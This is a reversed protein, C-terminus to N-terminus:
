NWSLKKREAWYHESEVALSTLIEIEGELLRFQNAKLNETIHKPMSAGSLVKFIPLSDLCFRLAIADVGVSYKTALAELSRYAKAYHPYQKNPFIRGNAMAEKIVVKKNQQSLRDMIKALSQEFVNYTVQFVDFLQVGEFKVELSKRIVENQNSGSTTLGISIGHTSKLDFLRRLVARNELVGSELTASHIQYIFLHPLLAKSHNWQEELKSLSHEKIEHQVADPAFNAVYTYGWKTAIEISSDQKNSVWELILEEAMGYGPATDFYRIGRDYAANLVDLGDQRFAELSFKADQSQGINIYQPRGIAATGLGIQLHHNM